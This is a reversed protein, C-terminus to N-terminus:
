QGGRLQTRVAAVREEDRSVSIGAAAARGFQEALEPAAIQSFESQAQAVLQAGRPDGSVNGATRQAHHVVIWGSGNPAPLVRARGQPISFLMRLPPPAAQGSNAIQLRQLSIPRPPEIQVGAQAYAQAPAMGGNIRQVIGDAVQRARALATQQILRERVQDRIEALPPVTPPITNQLSILAAQAEPQVMEVLPEENEAAFGAQIIPALTPALQFNAVGPAAGAATVAPTTQVQLRETQVVQEFSAGDQIQAEVRDMLGNLQESLKRTEIATVIEGRVSELPRAPTQTVAEVRVVQFGLDTRIPGVVAGQAASFAQQAVEPTSVGAFQERSQNAFNIDGAAFGARQAADAFSTGGQVQQVFARAAAEDPLIVRQLSRQERPGYTAQNEQYYAQVEQDSARAADGFHERGILAYRIVRREPVAFQQRNSQYFAAVEQESPQLSRAIVATPVAGLTGSRRELFLNAYEFGLARPVRVGGSVPGLVMQILESREIDERFMRETLGQRRLAEQLGAQNVQGNAGVFGLASLARDYAANSAALGHDTGWQAIAAQIIIQNLLQDFNQDIFQARELNPNQRQAERYQADILAYLEADTIRRDGIQAVTKPQPGTLGGMGGMGDTGFGTVVIAILGVGLITLMVINRFRKRKPEAM